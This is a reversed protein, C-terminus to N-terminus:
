KELYITSIVLSATPSKDRNKVGIEIGRRAEESRWTTLHLSDLKIFKASSEINSLFEGLEHYSCRVKIELPIRIYGEQRDLEKPKLSVVEIRADKALQSIRRMLWSVDRQLPLRKKYFSIRKDSLVIEEVLRNKAEEEKIEGELYSMKRKQVQYIFNNGIIVTLLIVGIVVLIDKRKGLDALNMKGLNTLNM